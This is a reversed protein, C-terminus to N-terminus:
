YGAATSYVGETQWLKREAGWFCGMGLLAMALGPPFPPVIRNGSVFHREPVRMPERRGPPAQERTPMAAKKFLSM